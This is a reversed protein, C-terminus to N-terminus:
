LWKYATQGKSFKITKYLTQIKYEIKKYMNENKKILLMYLYINYAFM